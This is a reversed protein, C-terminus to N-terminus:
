VSLSGGPDLASIASSVRTLPLDPLGCARLCGANPDCKGFAQETVNLQLGVDCRRVGHMVGHMAFGQTVRLASCLAPCLPIPAALPLPLPLPLPLCCPADAESSNSSCRRSPPGVEVPVPHQVPQRQDRKRPVRHRLAQPAAPARRTAEPCDHVCLLPQDTAAAVVAAPLQQQWQHWESARLPSM